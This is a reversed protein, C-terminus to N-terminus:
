ASAKEVVAYEGRDEVVEEGAVTAHGNVILFRADEGRVDRYERVTVNVAETCSDDACECLFAVPRDDGVVAIVREYLRQNARRFREQNGVPSEQSRAM